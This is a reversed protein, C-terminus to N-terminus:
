FSLRVVPSVTVGHGPFSYFDQQQIGFSFRLPYAVPVTEDGDRITARMPKVYSILVGSQVNDYSHFGEGRSFTFSGEASWRASAKYEFQAAPRMAQAIAFNQDLVRWSRLYDGLVTVRFKDGFQRQLGVYTNTTYYERILPRILFDRGAYGAILATKGWPRGVRFTLSASLDRSHLNQETFPGTERILNGSVSVWNMFPSTSMYLFQRFLNQNLDVPSEKDRRITFQIGPNFVINAGAFRVSPTVGTSVTTDYTDRDQIVNQAPISVQGRANREEVIGSFTPMGQFHLHYGADVRSEYSSRPPPLQAPSSGPNLEADLTYINIDEFIPAFSVASSLSFNDTIERGEEAAVQYLSEEATNKDDGAVEDARAFAALAQVNRRSQRYLNAETMLFDYNREYSDEGNLVALQAEASRTQGEALYANTLALAVVQPDAGEARARELYKKALDYQHISLFVGAAEVLHQPTIPKTEGLRAEAFGLAVQERADDWRGEHLFLRAIALRIEVGDGNRSELAATFRQMAAARDGLSLYMEGTALLVDSQGKGISEAQQAYRSAEEPQHLRAYTEALHAYILANNPEVAAVQRFLDAAEQYHRLRLLTDALALEIEPDKPAFKLAARYEKEADLLMVRQRYAEARTMHTVRSQGLLKEAVNVEKLAKSARHLQLDAMALGLHAEGYDSRLRIANEFDTAAEAAEKLDNRVYGRNMYGPAM